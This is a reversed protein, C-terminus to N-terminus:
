RTMLYVRFGIAIVISGYLLIPAISPYVKYVIYGGILWLSVTIGILPMIATTVFLIAATIKWNPLKLEM